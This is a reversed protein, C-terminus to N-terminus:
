NKAQQRMYELFLVVEDKSAKLIWKYSVSRPRLAWETGQATDHHDLLCVSTGEYYRMHAKM